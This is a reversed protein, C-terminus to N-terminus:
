REKIQPTFATYFIILHTPSTCIDVKVVDRGELWDNVREELPVPRDTRADGTELIFTKVRM